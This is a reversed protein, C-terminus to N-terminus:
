IFDKKEKVNKNRINAKKIKGPKLFNFIWLSLYLDIDINLNSLNENLGCWMEM